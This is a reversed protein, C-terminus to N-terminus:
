AEPFPATAKWCIVVPIPISDAYNELADPTRSCLYCAETSWKDSLGIYHWGQTISVTAILPKIKM